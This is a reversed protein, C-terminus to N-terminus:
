LAETIDDVRRVLVGAMYMQVLAEEVSSEKRRCRQIIAAEFPLSRLKPV